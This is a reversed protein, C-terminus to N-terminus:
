ADNSIPKFAGDRWTGLIREGTQEHIQVIIGPYDTGQYRYVATSVNDSSEGSLRDAEVKEFVEDPDISIVWDNKVLSMAEQKIHDAIPVWEHHFIEAGFQKAIKISNDKSGLDIVVLQECFSLSNLCEQLYRDENYTIVLGTFNIQHLSEM